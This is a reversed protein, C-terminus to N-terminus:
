RVTVEVRRNSKRGASTENSKAPFESALGLPAIQSQLIGRSVLYRTVNEAREASIRQNVTDGGTADAFGNVEIIAKPFPEMQQIFWDLEQYGAPKIVSSGVDFYVVAAYRSAEAHAARDEAQRAKREGELRDTERQYTQDYASACGLAFLTALFLAAGKSLSSM